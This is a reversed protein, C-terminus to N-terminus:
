KTLRLKGIERGITDFADALEEPSEPAFFHDSSNACNGLNPDAFGLDLAVVWVTMDMQRARNCASQFRAIARAADSGSGTTRRRANPVGVASYWDAGVATQGDTFFIIHKDVRMADRQTPNEAAFMGTPSLYRMGWIMGVDHHTNGARTRIANNLRTQFEAESGVEALRSAPAPCFEGGGSRWSVREPDYPVWKLTNETAGPVHDIDEQSVASEVTLDANTRLSYSSREEVCGRYGWSAPNMSSSWSGKWNSMWTSTQSQDTQTNYNNGSVTHYKLGTTRVYAAPVDRGVNTVVSYPMFGFRTVVGDDADAM